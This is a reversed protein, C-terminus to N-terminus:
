TSKLIARIFREKGHIDCLPEAHEFGFSRILQCVRTGYQENIEFYLRGPKNLHSVAMGAISRYFLLPDNDPVFLAAAPEFDLVNKHMLTKEGETVYPPNSAIVDFMGIMACDSPNLIDAVHFSVECYNDLANVIAMDIAAQSADVGTVQSDPFNSKLDVAICGSGTGIDLLTFSRNETKEMDSKIIRCLEETEPRPILVHSNVKLNIGNFNTRGLVYQIPMGKGLEQLAHDFLRMEKGPIEEDPSLHIMTKPWGMFADFLLYIINMVEQDPYHIALVAKYDSIIKRVSNVRMEM